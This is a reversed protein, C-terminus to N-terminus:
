EKAATNYVGVGCENQDVTNGRVNTYEIKTKFDPVAVGKQGTCLTKGEIYELNVKMLNDANSILFQRYSYSNTIKNDKQIKENVSCSPRYDTFSRGDSMKAPCDSYFNDVTSM